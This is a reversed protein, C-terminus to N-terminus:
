LGVKNIFQEKLYKYREEKEKNKLHVNRDQLCSNSYDLEYKFQESTLDFTYGEIVNFCHYNGDELLIGYIEGGFIDQVLISTISCQGLTMNDKSWKNQMRYACTKKCWLKSLVDYLDIPNHISKYPTKINIKHANEHGFFNYEM